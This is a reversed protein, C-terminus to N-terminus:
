LGRGLIIEKSEGIKDNEKFFFSAGDYTGSVNKILRDVYKLPFSTFRGAVTVLKSLRKSSVM